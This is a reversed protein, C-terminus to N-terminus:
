EQDSVLEKSEFNQKGNHFDEVADMLRTRNHESSLLYLTEQWGGSEPFLVLSNKGPRLIRIPEDLNDVKEFVAKPNKSFEAYSITTMKDKM